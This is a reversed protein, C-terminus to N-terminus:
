NLDKIGVLIGPPTPIEVGVPRWLHLTNPHNNVYESQKPHLQMVVDEADWFMAKVLCMDEWKPTYLKNHDSQLHVSVHEWGAGDSAIVIFILDKGVVRFVFYGNNGDETVTGMPGSKVRYQEPVKFM